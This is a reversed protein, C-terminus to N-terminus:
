DGDEKPSAPQCSPDQMLFFPVSAISGSGFNSSREAVELDVDRLLEAVGSQM